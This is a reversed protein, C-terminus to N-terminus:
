ADSSGTTRCINICPHSKFTDPKEDPQPTSKLKETQSLATRKEAKGSFKQEDSVM